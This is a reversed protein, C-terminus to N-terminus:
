IQAAQVTIRETSKMPSDYQKLESQFREGKQRSQLPQYDRPLHVVQSAM